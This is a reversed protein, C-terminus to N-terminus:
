EEKGDSNETETTQEAATNETAVGDTENPTESGDDGDEYEADISRRVAEKEQELKM